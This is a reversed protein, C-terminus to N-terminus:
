KKMWPKETAAKQVVAVFEPKPGEGIDFALPKGTELLSQLGSIIRPWGEEGGLMIARPIDWSHSETMTLETVAGQGIVDYAVLCTPLESFPPM